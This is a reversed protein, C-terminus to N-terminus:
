STIIEVVRGYPEDRIGRITIAYDRVEDIIIRYSEGKQFAHTGSWVFRGRSRPAPTGLTDEFSLDIETRELGNGYITANAKRWTVDSM